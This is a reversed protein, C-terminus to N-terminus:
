RFPLPIENLDLLIAIPITHTEKGAEIKSNACVKQNFTVNIDIATPIVSYKSLM